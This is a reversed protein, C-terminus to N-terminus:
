LQRPITLVQTGRHFELYAHFYKRRSTVAQQIGSVRTNESPLRETVVISQRLKRGVLFHIHLLYFFFINKDSLM